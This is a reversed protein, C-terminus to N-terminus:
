GVIKLQSSDWGEYKEMLTTFWEIAEERSSCIKQASPIGVGGVVALTSSSYPIEGVRLFDADDSGDGFAIIDLEVIWDARSPTQRAKCNPCAKPNEVRPIWLYGCKKCEM